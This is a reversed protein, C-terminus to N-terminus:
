DSKFSSDDHLYASLRRRKDANSGGALQKHYEADKRKLQDGGEWLSGYTFLSGVSLTVCEAISECLALQLRYVLLPALTTTNICHM